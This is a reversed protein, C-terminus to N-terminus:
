LHATILLEINILNANGLSLQHPGNKIHKYEMQIDEINLHRSHDKVWKRIPNSMHINLKLLDKYIKSLLGKNLIDKEFTEGWSIAQRKMRKVIANTSCLNKIKIFHKWVM